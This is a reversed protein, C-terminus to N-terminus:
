SLSPPAREPPNFSTVSVAIGPDPLIFLLKARQHLFLMAVLYDM